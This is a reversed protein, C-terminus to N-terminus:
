DRDFTIKDGFFDLTLSDDDVKFEAKYSFQVELDAEDLDMTLRYNLEITKRDLVQYSLDAPFDGQVMSVDDAFATLTGDEEFVLRIEMPKLGLTEKLEKPSYSRLKELAEECMELYEEYQEAEDPEYKKIEKSAVEYYEELLAKYFQRAFESPVVDKRSVWEGQLLKESKAINLTGIVMTGNIGLVIMVLVLIIALVIAIPKWPTTSKPKGANGTKQAASAVPSGCKICFVAGENIYAGCKDCFM